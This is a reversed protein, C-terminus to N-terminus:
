SHFFGEFDKCGPIHNTKNSSTPVAYSNPPSTMPNGWNAILPGIFNYYAASIRSYVVPPIFLTFFIQLYSAPIM